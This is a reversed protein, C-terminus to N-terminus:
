LTKQLLNTIYEAAADRAKSIHPRATTRNGGGQRRSQVGYKNVIVHGNELLYTLSPRTRNYITAEISQKTRKTRIAWGQKYEGSQDPSLQMVDRKAQKAGQSVAKFLADREQEEFQELVEGLAMEVTNNKAM